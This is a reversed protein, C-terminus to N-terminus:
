EGGRMVRSQWDKPLGEPTLKNHKAREAKVAEQVQAEIYAKLKELQAELLEEEYDFSNEEFPIETWISIIEENSLKCNRLNKDM